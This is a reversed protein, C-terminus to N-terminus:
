LMGYLGTSRLLSNGKVVLRHTFLLRLFRTFKLLAVPSVAHGKLWPTLPPRDCMTKRGQMSQYLGYELKVQNTYSM